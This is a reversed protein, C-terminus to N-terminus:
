YGFAQYNQLLIGLVANKADQSLLDWLRPSFNNLCPVIKAFLIDNMQKGFPV